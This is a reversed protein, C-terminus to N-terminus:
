SERDVIFMARWFSFFSIEEEVTTRCPRWYMNEEPLHICQVTSELLHFLPDLIIVRSSIDRIFLLNETWGGEKASSVAEGTPLLNWLVAAQQERSCHM